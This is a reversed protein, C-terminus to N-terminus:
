GKEENVFLFRAQAYKSNAKTLSDVSEVVEKLIGVLFHDYKVELVGIDPPMVPILGPNEDFFSDTVYSGSVASDFNIRTNGVPYIYALRHYDVVVKPQYGELRMRGYLESALPDQMDLLPTYDGRMLCQAVEKSLRISRKIGDTGSKCKYELRIYDTDPPYFRLRIKRKEMNGTLTDFLDQDGDSDFYLSRVRYGYEGSHPDPKVFCELYGRLLCFDLLSIPYKMEKRFVKNM